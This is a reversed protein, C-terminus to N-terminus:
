SKANKVREKERMVNSIFHPKYRLVRKELYKSLDVDKEKIIRKTYNKVYSEYFDDFRDIISNIVNLNLGADNRAFYSFSFMTNNLNVFDCVYQELDKKAYNYFSREYVSFVPVQALHGLIQFDSFYNFYAGVHHIYSIIKSISNEKVYTIEPTNLINSVDFTWDNQICFVHYGFYNLRKIIEAYIDSDMSNYVIVNDSCRKYNSWPVFVVSKKLGSKYYQLNVTPHYEFSKLAFNRFNKFEDLVRDKYYSFYKTCDYVNIFNENLSRMMVKYNASRNDIGNSQFHFAKYAYDANLGWVEDAGKFVGAMGPWTLVINYKKKNLVKEYITQGVFIATQLDCFFPHIVLDDLVSPNKEKSCIERQIGIKAVYRQIYEEVM